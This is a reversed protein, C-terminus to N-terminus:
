CEIHKLVQTHSARNYLVFYIFQGSTSASTSTWVLLLHRLLTSNVRIKPRLGDEPPPTLPPPRTLAPPARRLRLASCNNEGTSQMKRKLYHLIKMNKM